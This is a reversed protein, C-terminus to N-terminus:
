EIFNNIYLLQLFSKIFREEYGYKMTIDHLVIKKEKVLIKILDYLERNGIIMKGPRPSICYKGDGEFRWRIRPSVIYTKNTDFESVKVRKEIREKLPGKMWPDNGRLDGTKLEAHVRCGGGCKIIEACNKCDEPILSGDRWERMKAWIDQIDENLVNGYVKFSHSCPRAEGNSGITLTTAGASCSRLMFQHYKPDNILCYPLPELVDVSINFDGELRLLDDLTRILRSKDLEFSTHNSCSPNIPTAMFKDIGFNKYLFKGTDYVQNENKRTVVMNVAIKNGAETVYEIGRIIENFSGQIQTIEDTLKPDCSPLSTIISGIGMEKMKKADEKSCLRLNSNLSVSMNYEKAIPILEFLINKRLLPEGGTFLFDFVEAEGVKRVIREASVKDLEDVAFNGFYRWYNYCYECRNNCGSTLEYQVSIPAKLNSFVM